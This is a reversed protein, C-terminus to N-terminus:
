VIHMYVHVCLCKRVRGRRGKGGARGSRKKPRYDDDSEYDDVVFSEEGSSGGSSVDSAEYESGSPSRRRRRPQYSKVIKEEEEEEEEYDSDNNYYTYKVNQAARRKPPCLNYNHNGITVNNLMNRTNAKAFLSHTGRKILPSMKIQQRGQQQPLPTLQSSSNSSRDSEESMRRVLSGTPPKKPLGRSEASTDSEEEREGEGEEESQESNASESDGSEESQSEPSRSEEHPVYDSEGSKRRSKSLAAFKSSNDIVMDSVDSEGEGSSSYSESGSSVTGHGTGMKSGGLKMHQHAHMPTHPKLPDPISGSVSESAKKLVDM